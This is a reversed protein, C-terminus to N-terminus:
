IFGPMSSSMSKKNSISSYWFSPDSQFTSLLKSAERIHNGKYYMKELTPHLSSLISSNHFLPIGMWLLHFLSIRVNMFRTHSFFLQNSEKLWEYYPVKDSFVIPLKTVEINNLLNENLNKEAVEEVSKEEILSRLLNKYSVEKKPLLVLNSFKQFNVQRFVNEM